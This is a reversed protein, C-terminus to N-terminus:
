RVDINQPPPPLELLAEGIKALDPMFGIWDNGPPAQSTGTASGLLDRVRGASPLTGFRAEHLAMVLLAAGAIIASAGSTGGFTNTYSAPGTSTLSPYAGTTVIDAGWAFCNVRLGFNSSPNREHDKSPLSSGVLIAGSDVFSSAAPNLVPFTADLDASANGAAEVVVVGAGVALQIAATISGLFGVELPYNSVTDELLLVNPAPNANIAAWIAAFANEAGLRDGAVCVSSVRVTAQPAIGVIGVQNDRAAVIGLVAAGHNFVLPSNGDYHGTGIPAFAPLDQHNPLWGQEVDVFEIGQGDIGQTWIWRADIGIPAPDLYGQSGSMPDDSPDVSAAVLGQDRAVAEVEDISSLVREVDMLTPSRDIGKRRADVRWYSALSPGIRIEKRAAMAELDRLRRLDQAPVLPEAGVGLMKLRKLARGLILAHRVRDISPRFRLTLFGTDHGSLM